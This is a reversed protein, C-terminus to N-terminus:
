RIIVSLIGPQPRSMTKASGNLNNTLAFNKLYGDLPEVGCNFDDTNHQQELPSPNKPRDMSSM